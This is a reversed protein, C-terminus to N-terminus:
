LDEPYSHLSLVLLLRFILSLGQYMHLGSTTVSFRRMSLWWWRRRGEEEEGEGEGKKRGRGRRRRRRRIKRKVRM